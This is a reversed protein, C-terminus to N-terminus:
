AEVALDAERELRVIDDLDFLGAEPHPQELMRGLTNRSGGRFSLHPLQSRGRVAGCSSM